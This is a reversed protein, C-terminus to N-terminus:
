KNFRHGRLFEEIKLRKKGEQQIELISL